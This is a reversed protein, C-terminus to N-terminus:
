PQLLAPSSSPQSPPPSARAITNQSGLASTSFQTHSFLFPSRVLMGLSLHTHTHTHTQTHSPPTPPSLPLYLDSKRRSTGGVTNGSPVGDDAVGEHPTDRAALALADGDAM